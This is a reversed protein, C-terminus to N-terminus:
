VSAAAAAKAKGSTKAVKATTTDKKSKVESGQGTGDGTSGGFNRDSEKVILTLHTSRKLMRDARGMSRSMFRKMVPGGDAWVKAVYLRNEDLELVKANAVATKLAKEAMRAAKKKLVTLIRFAQPVPKHRIADLVLRMKRPGIKLYKVLAKAHRDSAPALIKEGGTKEEQTKNKQREKKM